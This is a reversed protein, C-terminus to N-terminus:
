NIDFIFDAYSFGQKNLIDPDWVPPGPYCQIMYVHYHMVSLSEKNCQKIKSVIENLCEKADNINEVKETFLYINWEQGKGMSFSLTRAIMEITSMNVVTNTKGYAYGVELDGEFFEKQCTTIMTRIVTCSDHEEATPPLTKIIGYASLAIAYFLVIVIGFIIIKLTKLKIKM